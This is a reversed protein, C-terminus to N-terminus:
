KRYDKEREIIKGTPALVDYEYKYHGSRFKVEYIWERGDKKYKCTGSSVVSLKKGSFDAVKKLAAEKGIKDKSTNLKHTYEVSMEEIIGTSASIAYDYEHHKKKTEFEIDYQGKDLECEYKCIKSAKLGADKLAKAKAQKPTLTAAFAGTGMTLVLILALVGLMMKRRRM